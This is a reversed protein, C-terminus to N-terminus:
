EVVLLRRASGEGEIELLYIGAPLMRVDFQVREEFVENFRAVEKGSINSLTINRVAYDMKRMDVICMGNCPNPYVLLDNAAHEVRRVGVMRNVKFDFIWDALEGATVRISYVVSTDYPFVANSLLSDNMIQFKDNHDDGEGEVLSVPYDLTDGEVTFTFKGIYTGEVAAAMLTTDTIDLKMEGSPASKLNSISRTFPGSRAKKATPDCIEVLVAGVKYYYRNGDTEPTQYTYSNENASVTAIVNDQTAASNGRLIEYSKIDQGQYKSWLLHVDDTNIDKTAALHITVHPDSLDSENGCSDVVSIRYRYAKKQPDAELDIAAQIDDIFISDVLDYEDAASGERWVKTYWTNLGYSRKWAVVIVGEDVTVVCIEQTSDPELINVRVTDYSYCGSGDVVAIAYEASDSVFKNQNEEIRNWIYSSYGAGANIELVSGACLDTSGSPTSTYTNSTVNLMAIAAYSFSSGYGYAYWLNGTADLLLPKNLDDGIGSTEKDFLSFTHGDYRLLGENTTTWIVDNKDVTVQYLVLDGSVWEYEPPSITDVPNVGTPDIRFLHDGDSAWANGESDFSLNLLDSPGGPLTVWTDTQFKMLVDGGSSNYEIAAWLTGAADMSLDNVPTTAADYVVTQDGDISAIKGNSFGLWKKGDEEVYIATVENHPLGTSIDSVSWTVDEPNAFGALGANTGVWTSDGHFAISYVVNGPLDSNSDKYQTITTGDFYLLGASGYPHNDTGLIIKGSAPDQSILSFKGEFTYSTFPDEYSTYCYQATASAMILGLLLTFFIRM